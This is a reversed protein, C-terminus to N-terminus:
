EQREDGKETHTHTTRKGASTFRGTCYTKETVNYLIFNYGGTSPKSPKKKKIIFGNFAPKM